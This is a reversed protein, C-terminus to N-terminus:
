EQMGAMAQNNTFRDWLKRLFIGLAAAGFAPVFVMIAVTALSDSVPGCCDYTAFGWLVQGAHVASSGVTLLAVWVLLARWHAAYIVGGILPAIVYLVLMGAVFMLLDIELEVPGPGAAAALHLTV